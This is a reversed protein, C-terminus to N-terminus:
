ISIDNEKFFPMGGLITSEPGKFVLARLIFSKDHRQFEVTTEGIVDLETRGDAQWARHNTPTINCRLERATEHDVANCTAGSDLTIPYSKNKYYVSLVPSANVTVLNITHDTVM